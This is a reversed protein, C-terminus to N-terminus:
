RTIVGVVPMRLLLRDVADRVRRSRRHAQVFGTGAAVVTILLALLHEQLGESLAIVFRTFAPLQAGFGQFLEQFVPVVKVLLLTTVIVAVLTVALPYKMAKGIKRKLAASKEKYLAVRALLTELTGSAEGSAVLSCFLDDFLRPHQRL